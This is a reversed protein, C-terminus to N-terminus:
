IHILSLEDIEPQVEFRSDLEDVTASQLEAAGAAHPRAIDLVAPKTMRRRVAREISQALEIDLGADILTSAVGPEEGALLPFSPRMRGIMERIEHIRHHLEDARSLRPPPPPAAAPGEPLTGFVVEYAGLHRAERPAERSNLLLADAGLERRAQEMAAPVSAAFFSKVFLNGSKEANLM